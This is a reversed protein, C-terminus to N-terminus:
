PIQACLYDNNGLCRSGSHFFAWLLGDAKGPTYDQVCYVGKKAMTVGFILFFQNDKGFSDFLFDL